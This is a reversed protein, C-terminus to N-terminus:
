EQLNAYNMLNWGGHTKEFYLYTEWGYLSYKDGQHNRMEVEIGENGENSKIEGTM